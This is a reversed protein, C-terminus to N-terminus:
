RIPPQKDFPPPLILFAKFKNKDIKEGILAVDLGEEIRKIKFETEDSYYVEWIENDFGKLDFSNNQVAIIEGGLMGDRTNQWRKEMPFAIDRSMRGGKFMRDGIHKNIKAMHIVAGLLSIILVGISTVFLVSYRYGRKTKRIALFGSVGALLALLIWIYPATRALVFFIKGLGMQRIVAPHIDLLNLIIFSFFIAGLFLTAIWVFWFLYSKWNLLLRSEPIIKEQKIKEIIKQAYNKKM